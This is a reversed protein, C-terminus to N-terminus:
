RGAEGVLQIIVLPQGACGAMLQFGLAKRFRPILFTEIRQEQAISGVSAAGFQTVLAMVFATILAPIGMVLYALIALYFFIGTQEAVILGLTQLIGGPDLFDAEVDFIIQDPNTTTTMGQPWVGAAVKGQGGFPRGIM